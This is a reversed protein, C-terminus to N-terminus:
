FKVKGKLGQLVRKGNVFAKGKRGLSKRQLLCWACCTTKSVTVVVNCQM